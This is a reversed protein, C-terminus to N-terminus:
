SSSDPRISDSMKKQPCILQRRLNRICLFQQPVAERRAWRQLTVATFDGSYIRAPGATRAGDTQVTENDAGKQITRDRLRTPEDPAFSSTSGIRPSCAILTSLCPSAPAFVRSSHLFTPIEPVVEVAPLVSAHRHRDESTQVLELGLAGLKLPHIGVQGQLVCRNLVQQGSLQFATWSTASSRCRPATGHCGQGTSAERSGWPAGSRQQRADPSGFSM